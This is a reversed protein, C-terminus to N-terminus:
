KIPDTRLQEQVCNFGDIVHNPHAFSSPQNKEGWARQNHLYKIEADM